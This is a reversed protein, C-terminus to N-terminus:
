ATEDVFRQELKTSPGQPPLGQRCVLEGVSLGAAQLRDRLHALETSILRATASREAWLQSSLTGHMLQAQVQLPGLPAVDFALEIKWLAEGREKEQRQPSDERQLKIQLPVFDRGDRMPLELQWTTLLAGDPGVQTQALSSLQHTQLRSVAAAALKLLLELDAEEDMGPPLKSPLPFGTALQRTSSQALAGLAQRAFAPLVQGMASGAQASALPTSGPLNPMQALLRLLAAKLDGQLAETQGALLRAELFVGSRALAAALLKADALQQMEPIQGLLKEAAGRLGAPLTGSNGQLAKLLGELSAQRNQQAGLQEGLHLQDLRGSLPVFTLAQSGKVQATLLSGLALPSASEINLKQGSLPSNLLSVVAKFLKQGDDLQHQSTAVVRGQIVSGVPLQQLDLVSAPQRGTAQQSALLRSDSLATIVYATGLSPAKNSSVEVTAQRGGTMTLRLVLRFAQAAERIGVIEAEAQEGAALLGQMPQLLKLALESAAAAQRPASAQPLATTSKIETM